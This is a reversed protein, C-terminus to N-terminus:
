SVWNMQEDVLVWRGFKWTLLYTYGAAELPGSHGGGEIRVFGPVVWSRKLSRTDVFLIEGREGGVGTVYDDSDWKAASAPRIAPAVAAVRRVLDPSPDHGDISLFRGSGDSWELQHLFVAEVIAERNADLSVPPWFAPFAVIVALGVFRPLLRTKQEGACLMGGLWVAVAVVMVPRASTPSSMALFAGIVAIPFGISPWLWQALAGPRRGRGLRMASVLVIGVILMVGLIILVSGAVSGRHGFAYRLDGPQPLSLVVASVLACIGVCRAIVTSDRRVIARLLGFLGYLLAVGLLGVALTPMPVFGGLAVALAWYGCAHWLLVFARRSV